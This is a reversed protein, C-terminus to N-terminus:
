CRCRWAPRNGGDRARLCRPIGELQVPNGLTVRSTSSTFGDVQGNNTVVGWWRGENRALMQREGRSAM